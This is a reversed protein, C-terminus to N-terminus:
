LREAPPGIPDPPRPGCYDVPFPEFQVGLTFPPTTLKKCAQWRWVAYHPREDASLPRSFQATVASAAQLPSSAARLQDIVRFPNVPTILYKKMSWQYVEITWQMGSSNDPCWGVRGEVMDTEVFLYDTGAAGPFLSRPLCKQAASPASFLVAIAMLFARIM